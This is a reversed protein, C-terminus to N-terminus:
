FFVNLLLCGICGRWGTTALHNNLFRTKWLLAVVERLLARYISARKRFFVQLLFCGRWGTAALHNKLFRTKLPSILKSFDIEDILNWSAEDQGMKLGIFLLIMPSKQLFYHSKQPFLGAVFPMWHVRAVRDYCSSKQNEFTEKESFFMKVSFRM